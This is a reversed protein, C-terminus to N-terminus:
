KDVMQENILYQYSRYNPKDGHLIKINGAKVLQDDM